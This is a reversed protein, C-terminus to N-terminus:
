HFTKIISYVAYIYITTICGVTVNYLEKLQTKLMHVYTM